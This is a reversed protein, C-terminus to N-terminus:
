NTHPTNAGLGIQLGIPTRVLPPLALREVRPNEFQRCTFGAKILRKKLNRWSGTGVRSYGVYHWDQGTAYIFTKMDNEIIENILNEQRTGRACAMMLRQTVADM